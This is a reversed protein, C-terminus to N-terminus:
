LHYDGNNYQCGFAHFYISYAMSRDTSRQVRCGPLCGLFNTPESPGDMSISSANSDIGQTVHPGGQCGCHVCTM